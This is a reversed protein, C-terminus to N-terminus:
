STFPLSYHEMGQLDGIIRPMATAVISNDLASLLLCLMLGAMMAPVNKLSNEKSQM